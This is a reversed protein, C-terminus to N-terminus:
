GAPELDEPLCYWVTKYGVVFLGDEDYIPMPFPSLASGEPCRAVLGTPRLSKGTKRQLRFQPPEENSPNSHTENFEDTCADLCEVEGVSGPVCNAACLFWDEYFDDDADATGSSPSACGVAILVSVTFLLAGQVFAPGSLRAALHPITQKRM